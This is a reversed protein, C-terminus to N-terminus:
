VAAKDFGMRRGGGRTLLETLFKKTAPAASGQGVDNPGLLDHCLRRLAVVDDVDYATPLLHVPLGLEAAREMTQEMVSGTSWRIGEFLRRHIKKLGILYYGGDESPGLVLRADPRAIIKVAEAFTSAPVTPSDSGILCVASFGVGLLDQFACIMREGLETGRQAILRFAGPVIERYEAAADSPTYCAIGRMGDGAGLISATMDRLFCINLEAAEELTLPPTLRTKVEGARPAKTMITLACFGTFAPEHESPFLLRQDSNKVHYSSSKKGVSYDGQDEDDQYTIPVAKSPTPYVLTPSFHPYCIRAAGPVLSM